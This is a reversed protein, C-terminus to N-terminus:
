RAPQRDASSPANTSTEVQNVAPGTSPGAPVVVVQPPPTAAVQAAADAAAQLQEDSVVSEPLETSIEAESVATEGEAERDGCATLAAAGIVAGTLKLFMKLSM